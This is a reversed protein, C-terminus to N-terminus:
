IITDSLQIGAYKNVLQVRNKIDMKKFINSLHKKITAESVFLFGAIEINSYGRILLEIIEKERDTLHTPHQDKQEIEELLGLSAIMTNLFPHLKDGRTDAVFVPTPTHEDYDYHVVGSEECGLSSIIAQSLPHPPPSAVIYGPSLMHTIFTIGSSQLMTPDAFDYTDLTKIFYGARSSRPVKLENQKSEPLHNFYNSSLPKAKLYDLTYENIPIIVSLGCITGHTNRTLTVFSPDLETLEDLDVHKLGYLSDRVTISFEVEENTAKDVYRVQTEKATAHRQAIYREAEARNSASLPEISYTISTQFFFSQILRDGIYYFCEINEWAELKDRASNKIKEYYYLVCRKWLRDYDQPVLLRMNENIANRFLDHLLWGQEVKRVFSYGILKRFYETAVPRGLVYSLSQHDFHRLVSAAEVIERMLVNPIEKLWIPVLRNLLEDDMYTEDQLSATLATAALLSLTLPHGGTRHWIRNILDDQHIGSRMLLQKVSDYDLEGLPMPTIRQRQSSQAYWQANLPTRGSILLLVSPALHAVFQERLWNEMEGVEEFTDLALVLKNDKSTNRITNLCLDLLHNLDETSQISPIPYRLLRLLHLCFEPPNRTFIPIDLLLFKSRADTSLRRFEDLLYSKGIGGSGYINIIRSQGNNASLHQFFTQIEQDRGLLLQREM